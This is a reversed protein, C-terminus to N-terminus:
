EDTCQILVQTETGSEHELVVLLSSNWNKSFAVSDPPHIRRKVENVDKYQEDGRLLQVVSDVDDGAYIQSQVDTIGTGAGAEKM